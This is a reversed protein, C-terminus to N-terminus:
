RLHPTAKPRASLDQLLARWQMKEVVSLDIIHVIKEGEMAEIIAQNSIVFAINLFLM